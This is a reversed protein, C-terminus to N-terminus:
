ECEGVTSCPEFSHKVEGKHQLSEAEDQREGQEDDLDQGAGKPEEFSPRDYVAHNDGAVRHDEKGEQM